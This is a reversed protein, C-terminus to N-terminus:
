IMKLPCDIESFIINIEELDDELDIVPDLLLFYGLALTM